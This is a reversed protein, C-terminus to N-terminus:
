LAQARSLVSWLPVQKVSCLCNEIEEEKGKGHKKGRAACEVTRM